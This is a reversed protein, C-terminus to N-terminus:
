NNKLIVSCLEFLDRNQKEAIDRYRKEGNKSYMAYEKKDLILRLVRGKIEDISFPNFYLVSDGCIEMLSSIASCIVPTGYKMCELPPYGFGENLTPYLLFYANKYLAELEYDKVYDLLVFMNRKKIKFRSAFNKAGLVVTYIEACSGEEYLSDMAKVARYANKIWRDANIILVYNKASFGAPLQLENDKKVIKEPSYKVDIRNESLHPFFTLLSYKTHQSVVLIKHSDSYYNLLRGFNKLQMKRYRETFIIRLSTNLFIQQNETINISM